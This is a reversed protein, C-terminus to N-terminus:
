ADGALARRALITPLNHSGRWVFVDKSNPDNTDGTRCAWSDPNAYEKLAAELEAVRKRLAPVCTCHTEDSACEESMVRHYDDRYEKLEARLSVLEREALILKTQQINYIEDTM